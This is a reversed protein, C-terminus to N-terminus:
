KDWDRITTGIGLVIGGLMVGAIIPGNNWGVLRSVWFGAGVILAAILALICYITIAVGRKM